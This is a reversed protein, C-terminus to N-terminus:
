RTRCIYMQMNACGWRLWPVTRGLVPMSVDEAVLLRRWASVAEPGRAAPTVVAPTAAQRRRSGKQLSRELVSAVEVLGRVVGYGFEEVVELDASGLVSRFRSPTFAYQFFPGPQRPPEARTAKVTTWRDRRTWRLARRLPSLYPVSVLLLGRLELVRWAETLAREPGAEFHEVVGGSYYASLSGNRFPLAHVDGVVLPLRPAASRLHLLPELAFDLGVTWVGRASERIVYEGQGCGGELLRDGPAVHTGLALAVPDIDLRGVAYALDRAKWHEEWFAVDSGGHTRAHRIKLLDAAM